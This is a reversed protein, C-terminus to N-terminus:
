DTAQYSGVYRLSYVQKFPANPRLRSSMCIYCCGWTQDTQLVSLTAKSAFPTKDGLLPQTSYNPKSLIEHTQFLEHQTHLLKTTLNTQQNSGVTANLKPPFWLLVCDGPSCYVLLRRANFADARGLFNVKTPAIERAESVWEYSQNAYSNVDHTLEFGGFGLNDDM